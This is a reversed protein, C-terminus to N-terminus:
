IRFANSICPTQKLNSSFKREASRDKGGEKKRSEKEGRERRSEKM